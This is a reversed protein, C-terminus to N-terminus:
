YEDPTYGDIAEDYDDLPSIDSHMPSFDSPSQGVIGYGRNSFESQVAGQSHGQSLNSPSSSVVSGGFSSFGGFSMGLNSFGMSMGGSAMNYQSGLMSEGGSMMYSIGPTIGQMPTTGGVMSMQSFGGAGFVLQNNSNVDDFNFDFNMNEDKFLQEDVTSYAYDPTMPTQGIPTFGRKEGGISPTAGNESKVNLGTNYTEYDLMVDFTSTGSKLPQGCIINASPGNMYDLKNHTAADIFVETTQEFSAQMCPSGSKSVVGFRTVPLVQGTQCMADVLTFMHRWNVYSGDFSIVQYLERLLSERAAEIGLFNEIEPVSNCTTKYPDVNPHNLIARLNIGLTDLVWESSEVITHDDSEVKLLPAKSMYVNRVGDFGSIKINRIQRSLTDLHSGTLESFEIEKHKKDQQADIVSIRMVLEQDNETSYKIDLDYYTTHIAQAIAALSINADLVKNLRFVLRLAWRSLRFPKSVMLDYYGQLWPRDEAIKSNQDDPDYIVTSYALLDEITKYGFEAQLNKVRSEALNENAENIRREQQYPTLSKFEASDYGAASLARRSNADQNIYADTPKIRMVPTNLDKSFDLLEKLRPVGLTVNKASVGAFHFTNLTMQTAPEGISQGSIVGIAEGPNVIAGYFANKIQNVVSLLCDKTLRHYECIRKSSLQTRLHTFFLMTASKQADISLRDSGPVVLLENILKTVISIVEIPSIDSYSSRTIKHIAKLNDIIRVVNVPLPFSSEKLGVNSRIEDRDKCIREFENDLTQQHADRVNEENLQTYVDGTLCDHGWGLNLDIAYNSSLDSDNLKISDVNQNEMQVADIGDEGYLFQLVSQSSNRVTGDYNVTLDEMSKVLKRQIYGTDATKVATDVLGERGGAAHFFLEAPTLGIIYSNQVFGRSSVDSHSWAPYHPLTRKGGFFPKIRKGEVNQQGVCVLIQSINIISGKSGSDVMTKINNRKSLSQQVAKGAEQMANNLEQNVRSEYASMMTDGPQLTILNACADEFLKECKKKAKNIAEKIRENTEADTVADQIGITYGRNSLWSNVVRQCNNLFDRCALHGEVKWIIHILGGAGTGLTKKDLTGMLLEGKQIVVKTDTPSNFVKESSPHAISDRIINVSEPIIISIIQKGTWLPVPFLIAPPPLDIADESAWILLQMVRERTLFIDRKTMLCAGLLSDQVIGMVPKNGQPSVIQQPSCMIKAVETRAEWSQPVHLNMEDGDFDANYPSTCSLNLRFTSYPMVKVRHGMLSMKHLSPQRNFMIWDDDLLHREVIDGNELPHNYGEARSLDFSTSGKKVVRAGPWKTPGNNVMDQLKTYNHPTVTEPFTLTQAVSIPVGVQDMSLTPDGTIVTRATFNCRKGMLNGRLRGKKAKLRESISKLPNGSGKHTIAAGSAAHNDFMRNVTHTLEELIQNLTNSPDGRSAKMLYENNKKVIKALFHTLDDHCVGEGERIISPRCCPPMVPLVTLVMSAPHCDPGLGCLSLTSPSFVGDRSFLKYIDEATMLKDGSDDVVESTSDSSKSKKTEPYTLTVHICSGDKQKKSDQIRLPQISNCGAFEAGYLGKSEVNSTPCRKVAKCYEVLADLRQEAPLSTIMAIKGADSIPDLLLKGCKKCICQLLKIVTGKYLDHFVPTALDIHGFHGPCAEITDAKCTACRHQRNTGFTGM